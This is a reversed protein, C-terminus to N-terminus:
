LSARAYASELIWKPAAASHALVGVETIYMMAPLRRALAVIAKKMGCRQRCADGTNQIWRRCVTSTRASLQSAMAKAPPQLHM